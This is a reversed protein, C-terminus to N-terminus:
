EKKLGERHKVFAAFQLVEQYMEDTIDGGGGFLAFKIDEESVHLGNPTAADTKGLLYDTTVCFYDAIKALAAPRPTATGQKWATISGSSLGLQRAVGNPSEGRAACLQYFRTFFPNEM